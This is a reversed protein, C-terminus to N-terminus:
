GIMEPTSAAKAIGAFDFMEKLLRQGVEWCAIILEFDATRAVVNRTSKEKNWSYFKEFESTPIDVSQMIQLYSEVRPLKELKLILDDITTIKKMLTKEKIEGIFILM